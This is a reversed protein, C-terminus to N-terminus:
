RSSPLSRTKSCPKAPRRTFRPWLAASKRIKGTVVTSKSINGLVPTLEQYHIEKPQSRKFLYGFTGVFILAVLVIMLIKGFKKM